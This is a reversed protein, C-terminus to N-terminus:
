SIPKFVWRPFNQGHQIHFGANEVASDSFLVEENKLSHSYYYNCHSHICNTDAISFAEVPVMVRQLSTLFTM